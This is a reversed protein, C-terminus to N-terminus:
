PEGLDEYVRSVIAAYHESSPLRLDRLRLQSGQRSARVLALAMDAYADAIEHLDAEGRPKYWHVVGNCMELLALRALRPREVDFVGSEVGTRLVRDWLAEYEDRLAVIAPRTEPSLSRVEEDVVGEPFRGHSIIHIRVAAVLQREPESLDEIAAHVAATIRRLRDSMLAVLLDEKTRMYHYLAATSVGADLAIERIGVAGYGKRAFLKLASRMIRKATSDTETASIV